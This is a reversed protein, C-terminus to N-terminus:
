LEFEVAVYKMADGKVLQRPLRSNPDPKPRGGASSESFNALAYDFVIKAEDETLPKAATSGQAYMRMNNLITQWRERSVRM